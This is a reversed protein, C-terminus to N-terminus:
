IQESIKWVMMINDYAVSACIMDDNINWSFDNIRDTHGGHIFLLEPPAEDDNINNIKSKDWIMVRRDSAHSSFLHEKTPSFSIGNIRDNHYKFM